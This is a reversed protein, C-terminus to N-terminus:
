LIGVTMKSFPVHTKKKVSYPYAFMFFNPVVPRSDIEM